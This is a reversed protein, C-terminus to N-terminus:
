PRKSLVALREAGDLLSLPAETVIYPVGSITFEDDKKVTPFSTAMYRLAHETVLVRNGLDIDGPSNLLAPATTTAGVGAPTHIVLDGLMSYITPLADIFPNSIVISNASRSLISGVANATTASIATAAPVLSQSSIAGFVGALTASITTKSTSYGNIAGVSNSTTAHIATRVGAVSSSAITGIANATTASIATKATVKSAISGVANATTTSVTTKCTAKSIISGTAGATIASVQTACVGFNSSAINGVANATTAAISTKATAKSAVSGVANATTAAIVTKCTSKTIISGVANAATATIATSVLAGFDAARLLTDLARIHDAGMDEQDANDWPVQNYIGEPLLGYRAAKTNIAWDIMMGATTETIVVFGPRQGQIANTWATIAGASANIDDYAVTQVTDGHFDMCVNFSSGADALVAAKHKVITELNSNNWNRNVDATMFSTEFDCRQGGGARGAAAALPYVFIEFWQRIRVAAADATLLFEVAGKLNYNGVDESAHMGSFLVMKRKASGDPAPGGSGIRFSYLPQASIAEGAGNTTASRTEFQYSSGGSPAHSVLGSSELSTIWPLTYGVRWPMGTTIYITNNAFAAINSALLYTGNYSKNDFATWSGMDGTTSWMLNGHYPNEMNSLIIRFQPTMGNVGSVAGFSLRCGTSNQDGNYRNKLTITPTLGNPTISSNALDITGRDVPNLITIAVSSAISGVANATTATLATKCTTKSEISGVANATTTTITTHIGASASVISGVANATTAGIASKCTSKSAISGVANDTTVSIATTSSAAGSAFLTRRASRVTQLPNNSLDLHDRADLRGDFFAVIGIQGDWTRTLDSPRNGLALTTSLTSFATGLEGINSAAVNVGNVYFLPVTGYAANRDHTLSQNVWANLTLADNPAPQISGALGSEIPSYALRGNSIWLGEGGDTLGNGSTHQFVRGLGGGGTSYAYIRTFLSRFGTTPPPITPGTLYSNTNGADTTGFSRAVGKPSLTKSVGSGTVSYKYYGLPTVYGDPLLVLVLGKKVWAPDLQYPGHQPQIILNSM